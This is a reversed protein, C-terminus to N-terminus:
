VILIIEGSMGCGAASFKSNVKLDILISTLYVLAESYHNIGKGLFRFTLKGLSYEKKM